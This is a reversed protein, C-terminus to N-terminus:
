DTAHIGRDKIWVLAAVDNPFQRPRSYVTASPNAALTQVEHTFHTEDMLIMAEALTSGLFTALLCTLLLNRTTANKLLLRTVCTLALTPVFTFLTALTSSRLTFGFTETMSRLQGYSVFALTTLVLPFLLRRLLTPM